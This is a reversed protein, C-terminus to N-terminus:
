ASRARTLAGGPNGYSFGLAGYQSSSGGNGSSTLARLSTIGPSASTTTMPLPIVAAATTHPSSKPPPLSSSPLFSGLTTTSSARSSHAPAVPRFPPWTFALGCSNNGRSARTKPFSLARSNTLNVSLVAPSTPSTPSPRSTASYLSTSVTSKKRSSADNSPAFFSTASNFTATGSNAIRTTSLSAALVSNPTSPPWTKPASTYSAPASHGYRITALQQRSISSVAPPLSLMSVRVATSPISISPPVSLLGYTTRVPRPSTRARCTTCAVFACADCNRGPSLPFIAPTFACMDACFGPSRNAHRSPLLDHLTNYPPPM